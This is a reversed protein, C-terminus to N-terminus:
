RATQGEALAQSTKIRLDSRFSIDGSHELLSRIEILLLQIVAGIRDAIELPAAHMIQSQKPFEADAIRGASGQPSIQRRSTIREIHQLPEAENVSATCVSEILADHKRQLLALADDVQVAAADARREGMAEQGSALAAQICPLLNAVAGFHNQDFPQEVIDGYPLRAKAVRGTRQARMQVIGLEALETVAVAGHIDGEIDILVLAALPSCLLKSMTKDLVTDRRTANEKGITM